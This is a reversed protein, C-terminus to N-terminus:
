EEPENWPTRSKPIPLREKVSRPEASPLRRDLRPGNKPVSGTPPRNKGWRGRNWTGGGQIPPKSPVEGVPRGDIGYRTVTPPSTWAPTSGSPPTAAPTGFDISQDMSLTPAKTGEPISHTIRAPAETPIATAYGTETPIPRPHGHMVDLLADHEDALRGYKATNSGEVFSGAHSKFLRDLLRALYGESEGAAMWPGGASMMVQTQPDPLLSAAKRALTVTLPDMVSAGKPDAWWPLPQPQIIPGPM